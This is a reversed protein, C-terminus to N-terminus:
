YVFRLRVGCIHAKLDLKLLLLPNVNTYLIAFELLHLQTSGCMMIQLFSKKFIPLTPNRFPAKMTRM